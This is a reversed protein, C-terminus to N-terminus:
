KTQIEQAPGRTKFRVILKPPPEGRFEASVNVEYSGRAIEPAPEELPIAKIHRGKEDHLRALKREDCVLMQGPTIEVPIRLTARRDIELSPNAISGQEGEVTMRFRLPQAADPNAVQWTAATPQGPQLVRREYVYPKTRHYAYLKWRKPGAPELHYENDPNRLAKRQADSFARAQRAADWERIADLIDGTQPNRKLTAHNTALAFGADYGACSALMWEIDALTTHPRMSFWGLMAPMYNRALLHQNDFRYQSMSSRFGGYWPEGWNVATNIRWYFPKIISSGNYVPRDLHDWFVKAFMNVAFDGQGSAWCGEHGDFDLHTLGTENFLKALRIAIEHQMEYNPFFVKYPHDLLKAVEAGGAHASAKTGFAGRQCQTITPSKGRTVEGYRVLEQGIMVTRLWNAKDNDVYEASAIPIVAATADIDASLTTSGTKALRGDPVPSVYADHTHIFNTLTHVGLRIGLKDAKAVCRKMGQIGHPFHGRNLAYHGWSKFPGPHYLSALNGRQTFALMDDINRETFAAILYPRGAERAQKVWTGDFVPHPLGEAQEIQGIRDLADGAACGFLAIKSGVLTEGPIPPVPMNRFHGGWVSIKRPRSRDLTYAQLTSGWPTGIATRGRSPEVGEDNPLPGGLTKVNLGQIGIAFHEDRVVGVINGVTQKIRTPIPGWQLADAKGAPTVATLAFVVHTPKTTASITAQIGAPQFTLQMRSADSDSVLKSPPTFAGDVRLQLLPRDQDAALYDVGRARDVLASVRGTNDLALELDRTRFTTAAQGEPAALGFCVLNIFFVLGYTRIM